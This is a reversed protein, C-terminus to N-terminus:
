RVAKTATASGVATLWLRFEPETRTGKKSNCSNCAPVLNEIGNSGGRAIPTRHDVTM